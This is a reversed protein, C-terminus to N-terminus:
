TGVKVEREGQYRVTKRISGAPPIFVYSYMKISHHVNNQKNTQM